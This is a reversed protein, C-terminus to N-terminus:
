LLPLKWTSLFYARIMARGRLLPEQQEETMRELYDPNDQEPEEYNFRVERM